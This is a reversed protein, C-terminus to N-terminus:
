WRGCARRMRGSRLVAGLNRPDTVGDIVVIPDAGLAIVDEVAAYQYEHISAVIGQHRAAAGAMRTLEDDSAIAM